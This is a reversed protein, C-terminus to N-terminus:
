VPSSDTRDCISDFCGHHVDPLQAHSNSLKMEAFDKFFLFQLFEPKDSEALIQCSNTDQVRDQIIHLTLVLIM